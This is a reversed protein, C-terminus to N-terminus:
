TQIYICNQMYQNKKDFDALKIDTVQEIMPNEVWKNTIKRILFRCCLCLKITSNIEVNHKDNFLGEFNQRAINWRVPSKKIIKWISIEDVNKNGNPMATKEDKM